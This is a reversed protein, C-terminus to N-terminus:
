SSVEDPGFVYSRGCIECATEIKGDQAMDELEAKSFQRLVNAVREASCRCHFSLETAEFVRVGDEHYLRFLVHEPALASDLLESDRVSNMMIVVHRWDEEAAESRFAGGESEGGAVVAPLPQLMIAGGRWAFDGTEPDELMDVALRIATPLQESQRFYTQLCQALTAGELHVIGQYREKGGAPDLTVSLTGAHLLQPVLRDMEIQDLAALEAEEFRAYGRLHGPTSFDAFLLRVPGDSNIQLTMVGEDKLMTGLLATLCVAEALLFAVPAPYGRRLIANLSDEVRVFRGRVERGEVGFPLVFDGDFSRGDSM